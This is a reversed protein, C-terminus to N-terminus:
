SVAQGSMLGAEPKQMGESRKTGCISRTSDARPRGGSVRVFIIVLQSGPTALCLFMTLKLTGHQYSVAPM